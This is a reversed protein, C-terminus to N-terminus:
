QADRARCHSSHPFNHICVDPHHRFTIPVMTASGTDSFRLSAGAAVCQRRIQPPQSNHSEFVGQEERQVRYRIAPVTSNIRFPLAIMNYRSLRFSSESESAEVPLRAIPVGVNNSEDYLKQPDVTDRHLHPTDALLCLLYCFTSRCENHSMDLRDYFSPFYSYTSSVCQLSLLPVDHCEDPM